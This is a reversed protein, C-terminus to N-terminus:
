LYIRSHGVSQNSVASILHAETLGLLQLFRYEDDLTSGTIMSDDKSISFNTKDEAFRIVSHKSAWIPCGGTLVSSIPCVQLINITM